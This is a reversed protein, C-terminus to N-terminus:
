LQRIAKRGAPPDLDTATVHFGRRRLQAVTAKGVLGCAGTVLVRAANRSAPGNQTASTQTM